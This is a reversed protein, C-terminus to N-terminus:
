WNMVRCNLGAERIFHVLIGNHDTQCSESLSLIWRHAKTYSILPCRPANLRTVLTYRLGAECRKTWVIKSVSLEFPEPSTIIETSIGAHNNERVIYMPIIGILCMGQYTKWTDIGEIGAARTAQSNKSPPLFMTTHITVLRGLGKSRNDTTGQRFSEFGSSWHTSPYNGVTHTHTYDECRGM